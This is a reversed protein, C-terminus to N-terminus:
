KSVASVPVIMERSCREIVSVVWNRCDAEFLKKGIIRVSTAESAM